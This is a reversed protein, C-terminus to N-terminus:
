VAKTLTMSDDFARRVLRDILPRLMRRPVYGRDILAAISRGWKTYLAALQWGPTQRDYTELVWWRLLTTRASGAGYLAEAIWCARTNPNGAGPENKTGGGGQVIDKVHGYSVVRPPSYPKKGKATTADAPRRTRGM